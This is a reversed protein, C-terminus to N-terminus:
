SLMDLLQSGQYSGELLEFSVDYKYKRNSLSGLANMLDAFIIRNSERKLTAASQEANIKAGAFGLNRGGPVTSNM